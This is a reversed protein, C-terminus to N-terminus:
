KGTKFQENLLKFDLEGQTIKLHEMIILAKIIRIDSSKVKQVLYLLTRKKGDTLANFIEDAESDQALAMEFEPAIPMGYKSTDKVVSANVPDGENLGLKKRIEQNLNIFYSGDGAPMFACHFTEQNNLTCVVRKAKGDFDFSNVVEKPVIIHFHWLDSNFRALEATFTQM